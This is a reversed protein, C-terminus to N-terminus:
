IRGRRRLPSGRWSPEAFDLEVGRRRGLAAGQQAVAGGWGRLIRDM